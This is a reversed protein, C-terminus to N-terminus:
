VVEVIGRQALAKLVQDLEALSYEMGLEGLMAQLTEPTWEQDQYRRASIIQAVRQTEVSLRRARSLRYSM